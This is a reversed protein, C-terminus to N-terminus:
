RRGSPQGNYRLLGMRWWVGADTSTIQIAVMRGRGRVIQYDNASAQSWTLPGVVTPTDQPYDVFYLTVFVRNNPTPGAIFKFDCILREISTFYTGDSIGIYGTMVSPLMPLGNADYGVEHEQIFGSTDSALPHGYPTEDVGCTRILTGYDWARETVTFKVYSDVEQSSASPYFWWIENFHSNVWCWVKQLQATNINQYIQDWVTCPIVSVANGDFLYFNDTGAWYVISNYVGAAHPGILECGSAIKIFGFVLPAGIYQMIWFDINTWIYGFQQGQLGGVIYSGTPIRFSGAQNAATALWDTFDSVDSWRVLNPDQQGGGPPDVGLAVMIQEPMAVFSSNVQVPPDVAGPFNTTNIALAVNTGTEPPTWVFIPSGNYNGILDQGWNDLFWLRMTAALSGGSASSGGSIGYLGAGYPGVGYGGLATNSAFGTSYLYYIAASGGNEAV